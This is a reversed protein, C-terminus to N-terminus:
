HKRIEKFSIEMDISYILIVVDANSFDLDRMASFNDNGPTDFIKFTLSLNEGKVTVREVMSYAQTATTPQM